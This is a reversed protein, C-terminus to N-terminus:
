IANGETEFETMYGNDADLRHTAKTIRLTQDLQGNNGLGEIKIMAGPMIEPLGISTGRGSVLERAQRELMSTALVQAEAQSGVQTYVIEVKQTSLQNALKPGTSSKSSMATVSKASAEVHVKKAVDYGRVKVEAMQSSADIELLFSQLNQGYKLTVVPADSAPKKFYLKSATVYFNRDNDVALSRVFHYDSVGAQEIRTKQVTTADIDASLGYASAIQRVADSDKMDIWVKSHSSKMMLFSRDMATVIISPSGNTPYDLSYGTILGEFVVTKKDAYGMKVQISKGINITSGVWKFRTEHLIFGNTISFRAVDAQPEISLEVEVWEVAMESLRVSQGDIWIDAEPAVFHNYKTELKDFSASGPAM